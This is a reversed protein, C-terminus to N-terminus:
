VRVVGCPLGPGRGLGLGLRVMVRSRLFEFAGIVAVVGVLLVSLALLTPMSQSPLVRDYLQMMYLPSGLMLLNIVCSFAGVGLLAPRAERLVGVLSANHLSM